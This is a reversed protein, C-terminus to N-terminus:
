VDNPNFEKSSLKVTDITLTNYKGCSGCHIALNIFSQAESFEIDEGIYFEGHSDTYANYEIEKKCGCCKAKIKSIQM